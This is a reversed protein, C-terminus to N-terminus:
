PHTAPAAPASAPSDIARFSDIYPWWDSNPIDEATQLRLGIEYWTGGREFVLTYHFDKKIMASYVMAPRQQFQTPVLGDQELKRLDPPERFRGAFFKIEPGVTKVPRANITTVYRDASGYVVRVEWDRPTIISFSDNLPTVRDQERPAPLGSMAYVVLGLALLFGLVGLMKLVPATLNYRKM